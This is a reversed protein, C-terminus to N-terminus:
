AWGAIFATMTRSIMESTSRGEAGAVEVEMDADVGEPLCMRKVSRAGELGLGFVVGM